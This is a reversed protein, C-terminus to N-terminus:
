RVGYLSESSIGLFELRTTANQSSEGIFVVVQYGGLDDVGVGAINLTYCDSCAMTVSHRPSSEVSIMMDRHYWEVTMNQNTLSTLVTATIQAM